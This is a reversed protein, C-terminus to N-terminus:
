EFGAGRDKFKMHKFFQNGSLGWSDRDIKQAAIVAESEPNKKAWYYGSLIKWRNLMMALVYVYLRPHNNFLKLKNRYIFSNFKSKTTNTTKLLNQRLGHREIRKKLWNEENAGLWVGTQFQRWDLDENQKSMANIGIEKRTIMTYDNDESQIKKCLYTDVGNYIEKYENLNVVDFFYPTYVWYVGAFVYDTNKVRLRYTVYRIVDGISHMLLKKTFSVLVIKDQGVQNLGLLVEKRIISDIDFSLIIENKAMEYLKWLVNSLQFNWSGDNKVPIVSYNSYNNKKMLIDIKNIIKSQIPYDIGFLIENPNLKAASTISKEMFKFEEDTGKIPLVITFQKM